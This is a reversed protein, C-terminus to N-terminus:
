VMLGMFVVLLLVFMVVMLCCDFGYVVVVNLGMGVLFVFRFLCFM